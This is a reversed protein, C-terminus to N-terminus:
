AGGEEAMILEALWGILWNLRARAEADQDEASAADLEEPLHQKLETHHGEDVQTMAVQRIERYVSPLQGHAPSALQGM